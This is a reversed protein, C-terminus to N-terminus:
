LTSNTIVHVSHKYISNTLHCRLIKRTDTVQRQYFVVGAFMQPKHTIVGTNENTMLAIYWLGGGSYGGFSKPLNSELSYDAGVDCLDYNEHEYRNEIGTFGVFGRFGKVQSFGREEKEVIHGEYHFGSIVMPHKETLDLTLGKERNFSLNFFDKCAHLQDLHHSPKIEVFALDPGFEEVTPKAINVVTMVGKGLPIEFRHVQEHPLMLMGLVDSSGAHFELKPRADHVVHYATLIGRRDGVRVLTGSGILDDKHILGVVFPYIADSISTTLATLIENAQVTKV